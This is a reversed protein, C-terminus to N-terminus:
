THIIIRSNRSDRTLISALHEPERSSRIKFVAIISHYVILQNVSLWGLRDYMPAREARPPSLTVIQAAKNQLVQLDKLDGVDLGGYLPLCYVLVSNFIGESITKRMSYPCIYKLKALGVLRKRLKSLLSYIQKHWKLNEQIHCGLLLECKEKDEELWINDMQVRVKNPLNLLRQSTGITMLHTKDPNLKLRNSRMWDSVRACDETLNNNIEEVTKATASITTDDAYSDVASDLTTPLDNFFILFFLPGLNSGQPVGIESHLFDSLTHDLWVAQYRDTLYSLIWCIFEEELGYIRLKKVLIKPDVLDFAASLDLLVVGSVQGAAAAKVWRDYMTMLATQTSRHQRYGHLNSHFIKNRTMYDYLQEYIVKELIKSLPSLIAVPRYNKMDLKCHKKHLPIVKSYKWSRPFKHQLISLTIIHHLPRDIVDAAIKM